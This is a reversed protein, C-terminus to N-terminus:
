FYDSIFIKTLYKKSSFVGARKAFACGRIAKRGQVFSLVVFFHLYGGLAKYKRAAFSFKHSNDLFIFELFFDVFDNELGIGRRTFQEIYYQEDQDHGAYQDDHQFANLPQLGSVAIKEVSQLPGKGNNEGDFVEQPQIAHVARGFVGSRKEPNDVQQGNQRGVDAEENVAGLIQQDDAGKPQQPHEPNELEAM